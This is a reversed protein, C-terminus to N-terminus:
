GSFLFLRDVEDPEHEASKTAILEMAPAPAAAPAQTRALAGAPAAPLPGPRWALLSGATTRLTEAWATWV